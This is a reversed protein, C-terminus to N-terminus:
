VFGRRYTSIHRRGVKTSIKEGKSSLAEDESIKQSPAAHNM